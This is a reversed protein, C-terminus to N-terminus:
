EMREDSLNIFSEIKTAGKDFKSHDVKIDDIDFEGKRSNEIDEISVYSSKKPEEKKIPSTKKKVNKEEKDETNSNKKKSVFQIKIDYNSIIAYLVLIALFLAFLDFM